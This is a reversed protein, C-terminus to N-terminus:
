KRKYEEPFAEATKPNIRGACVLGTRKDVLGWTGRRLTEKVLYFEGSELKSKLDQKKM